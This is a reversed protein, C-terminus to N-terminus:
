RRRWVSSPQQFHELLLENISHRGPAGLPKQGAKWEVLTSVYAIVSAEFGNAGLYNDKGWGSPSAITAIAQGTGAHQQYSPVVPRPRSM